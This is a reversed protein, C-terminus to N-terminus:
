NVVEKFTSVRAPVDDFKKLRFVPKVAQMNHSGHIRFQVTRNTRAKLKPAAVVKTEKAQEDAKERIWEKQYQHSLLKGMNCDKDWIPPLQAKAAAIKQAMNPEQSRSPKPAVKAKIAPLKLSKKKKIPDCHAKVGEKLQEDSYTCFPPRVIHEVKEHEEEDDTYHDYVSWSPPAPIGKEIVAQSPDFETHIFWECMPYAKAEDQVEKEVHELINYGRSNHQQNQEIAAANPLESKPKPAGEIEGIDPIQSINARKANTREAPRPPLHCFWVAPDNVVPQPM